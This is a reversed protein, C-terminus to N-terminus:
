YVTKKYLKEIFTRPFVAKVSYRKPIVDNEGKQINFFTREKKVELIFNMFGKVKINIGYLLKNHIMEFTVNLVKRVTGEDINSSLSVEKILESKNM